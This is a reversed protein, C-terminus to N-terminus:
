FKITFKIALVERELFISIFGGLFCILILEFNPEFSFITNNGPSQMFSKFEIGSSDM